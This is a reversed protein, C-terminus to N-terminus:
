RRALLNFKRADPKVHRGTAELKRRASVDSFIGYRLADLSNHVLVGNAFFEPDHEVTLDFTQKPVSGHSVGAVRVLVARLNATGISLSPNNVPKAHESSTTPELKVGLPLAASIAVSDLVDQRAPKTCRGVISALTSSRSSRNGVWGLPRAPESRREQSNEGSTCSVPPTESERESQPLKEQEQSAGDSSPMTPYISSDLSASSTTSKTTSPTKMRTTFTSGTPSQGTIINGSPKICDGAANHPSTSGCSEGSPTPIADIHSAMSSSESPTRECTKVCAEDRTISLLTDYHTLDGLCSWGKGVVWVLHDATGELTRGDELTVTSTRDFRTPCSFLVRRLGRRTLVVDSTTVDEIAVLGRGTEVMTGAVLCHNNVDLPINGAARRDTGPPYKYGAIERLLNSCTNFIFLQPKGDGKVMMLSRLLEIGMEISSGAKNALTTNIGHKALEARIQPDHDSYTPGFWPGQPHDWERQKIKEAHYDILRGSEYHEDYVYYRNDHDRAIWLCAFPDNFGFDIGRIKRWDRPIRFPECVHIAKRFEKFVAGQLTTFKGITRMERLDEPTAAIFNEFWGEALYFNRSTNLHYFRWDKPALPSGSAVLEYADPWAQEKCEVPTFDAWGPSDYDRCRGRVEGVLDYPVEENFWYGGISAGKASGLGQEYSRFELVWGVKSRDDPHKLLVSKPWRRVKDHWRYDFIESEPIMSVLKGEEAWCVGSVQDLSGGMVWFPCGERPPKVSLVHRATKYAAGHTKGSGTGGLCVKFRTDDRYVFRGKAGLSPDFHYDQEVFSTQEEHDQPDDPRPRFTYFPHEALMMLQRQLEVDGSEFALRIDDETLDALNM